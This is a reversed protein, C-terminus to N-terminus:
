DHEEVTSDIRGRDDMEHEDVGVGGTRRWKRVKRM